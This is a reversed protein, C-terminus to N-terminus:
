MNEAAAKRQSKELEGGGGGKRGLVVTDFDVKDPKGPGWRRHNQPGVPSKETEDEERMAAWIGLALWCFLTAASPTMSILGFSVAGSL